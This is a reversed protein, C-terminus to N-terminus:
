DDGDLTTSFFELFLDMARNEKAQPQAFIFAFQLEQVCISADPSNGKRQGSV